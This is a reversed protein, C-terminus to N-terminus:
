ASAKKHRFERLNKRLTPLLVLLGYLNSLLLGANIIDISHWILGVQALSGILAMLCYIAIYVFTFKGGTLYMWCERGIYAYAVLVGMGFTISLFTVLWGGFNGFVTSYAAITLPTSTLGSNWVGSAVFVLMLLFCVLYNSIFTSAMSMIGSRVSDKSGTAGFLVGATGIGAETANFTRSLGFRLANQITYGTLAGAIAQPEFASKFIIGLAPLIMNYHYILAILTAIFFLGVKIPVIRDSVKIIRQAGGLMIYLLFAFLVAAIIRTDIGSMKKLGLTISQCQMANGSFFSLLLCFTAYFSPLIFGGPVRKLYAMPGGRLTGQPTKEVFYTSASVEAFRIAMSFIGLILIWFAAGPGGAYMATAMGATSGNGISASLTNVFAQFPSIYNERNGTQKEPFLVYKWSALFYRFQVFDFAITLVIGTFLIFFILPWGWIHSGILELMKEISSFSM